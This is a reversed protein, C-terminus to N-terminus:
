RAGPIRELRGAALRTAPRGVMVGFQRLTGYAISPLAGAPIAPLGTLFRIATTRRRDSNCGACAAPNHTTSM